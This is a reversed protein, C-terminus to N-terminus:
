SIGPRLSGAAGPYNIHLRPRAVEYKDAGLNLQSIKYLVKEECLPVITSDGIMPDVSPLPISHSDPDSLRCRRCIDRTVVPRFQRNCFSKAKGAKFAFSM